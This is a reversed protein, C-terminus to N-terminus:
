DSLAGGFVPDLLGAELALSRGLMHKCPLGDRAGRISFDPFGCSFEDTGYELLKSELMGDSVLRWAKALRRSDVDTLKMRAYAVLLKDTM